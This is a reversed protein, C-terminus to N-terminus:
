GGLLMTELKSNRSTTERGEFVTRPDDFAVKYRQAHQVNNGCGTLAAAFLLLVPVHHKLPNVGSRPLFRRGHNMVPKFEARWVGMHSM